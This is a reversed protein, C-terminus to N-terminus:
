EGSGGSSKRVVFPIDIGQFFCVQNGVEAEHPVRGIEGNNSRCFGRSTDSVNIRGLHQGIQRQMEPDDVLPQLNKFDYLPAVIQSINDLEAVRIHGADHALGPSDAQCLTSLHRLALAATSESAHASKEMILMTNWVFRWQSEQYPTTPDNHARVLMSEIIEITGFVYGRVFLKEPVANGDLRWPATGDSGYSSPYTQSAKRHVVSGVRQQSWDPVWSPKSIAFRPFGSSCLLTALGHKELVYRALKTYAVEQSIQYDPQLDPHNAADEPLIGLVGFIHDRLDTTRSRSTRRLLIQFAWQEHSNNLARLSRLSELCTLRQSIGLWRDRESNSYFRDLTQKPSVLPRLTEELYYSDSNSALTRCIDVYYRHSQWHNGYLFKLKRALIYEQAIWVREFGLSVSFTQWHKGLLM